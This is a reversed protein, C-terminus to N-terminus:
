LVNNEFLMKVGVRKAENTLTKASAIFSKWHMERPHQQTLKFTKGVAEPDPDLCFGAHVSFFEGGSLSALTLGQVCHALSKDLIEQNVSGLNLLFPVEPAPFYNHLLRECDAKLYLDCMERQYPLGSSFELTFQGSKALSIMERVERGRFATTSVGVRM